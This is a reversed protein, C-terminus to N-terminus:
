HESKGLLLSFVHFSPYTSLQTILNAKSIMGKLYKQITEYPEENYVNKTIEIEKSIDLGFNYKLLMFLIASYKDLLNPNIKDLKQKCYNFEKKLYLLLFKRVELQAIIEDSGKFETLSDDYRKLEKEAEDIKGESILIDIYTLILHMRSYSNKLEEFVFFAERASEEASQFKGMMYYTQAISSLAIGETYRDGVEKAIKLSLKLYEEAENFKQLTFYVKAMNVLVNMETYRNGINRSIKLANKFHTIAENLNGIDIFVLGMNNYIAPLLGRNATQTVLGLAEDLLSLAREYEKKSMLYTSVNILVKSLRDRDKLSRYIKIAEEFLIYAKDIEGIRINVNALANLILGKRILVESNTQNLRNIIALAKRANELSEMYDSMRFQAWAIRGLIEAKLVPNRVNQIDKLIKLVTSFKGQKEKISALRTLGLIYTENTENKEINKFLENIVETAKDYESLMELVWAKKLLVSPSPDKIGEYCKLAFRFNAQQKSLDGAKEFLERSKEYKKAYTFHMAADYLLTANDEYLELIGGITNHLKTREKKTLLAYAADKLMEHVFVYQVDNEIMSEKERTIIDKDKLSLLLPEVEKGSVIELVGQWFTRGICSATKVVEKLEQPMTDIKETLLGILTEPIYLNESKARLPNTDYLGRTKIYKALEEIYYPNGGAKEMILSVFEESIKENKLNFISRIITYTSSKSLPSLTIVRDFDLTRHAKRSNFIFFTPSNPVYNKLKILIDYSEEDTYHFDDVVIVRSIDEKSLISSLLILIANIREKSVSVSSELTYSPYMISLLLSKFTKIEVESLDKRNQLLDEIRNSIEDKDGRGLIEGIIQSIVNFSGERLPDGRVFVVHTRNDHRRLNEIFEMALRTKGLGAEGQVMVVKTKKESVVAEYLRKLINLEADRELIPTPNQSKTVGYVEKERVVEYVKVPENRGKVHTEGRSLFEFYEKSLEKTKFSVFVKGPESISELRQAVNVADGMVTPKEGAISSWLVEGTNIGIRLRLSLGHERNFEKLTKQMKLASLIARRPDDSHSKPAGFVAMVADGIFKDLYGGNDEIIDRFLSFIHNIIDEVDEPDLGESLSTFGKIDAFLITVFRREPIINKRM